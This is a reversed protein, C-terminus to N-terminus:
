RTAPKALANEIAQKFTPFPVAGSIAKQAKFPASGTPTPGVLFMPTGSVGLSQYREVSKKVEAAHKGSEVCSRFAAVNLGVTGGLAILEERAKIPAEFLKAHYEWFKGQEAACMAAEHSKYADPHLQDIPYHVFVHRVKGTKLYDAYIQPQTQQIHRRCFPCHYDSIEVLTVPASSSGNTPYGSLDLPTEAITPTGYRGGTAEKLFSKIEELDKQMAEQSAKLAQIERKLAAVDNPNQPPSLSLLALVGIAPLKLM